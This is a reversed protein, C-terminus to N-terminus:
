VVPIVQTRVFKEGTTSTFVAFLTYIGAAAPAVVRFAIKTGSISPGSIVGDVTNGASDTVTLVVTDITEGEELDLAIDIYHDEESIGHYIPDM